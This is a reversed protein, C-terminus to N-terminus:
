GERRVEASITVGGVPRSAHAAAYKASVRVEVIEPFADMLRSAARKVATELFESERGEITKAAVEIAAGHDVAGESDSEGFVAYSYELDVLISRPRCAREEPAGGFRAHVELDKIVAHFITSDPRPEEEPSRREPDKHLRRLTERAVREVLGPSDPRTGSLVAPGPDVVGLREFVERRIAEPGADASGFIRAAVGGSEGALGLLLHETGVYGHELQLSERLSLELVKKSRPTFPAQSGSGDEGYGVIGEVRGRAGDVGFGLSRLAQAAIGEGERLLGLLLHETGIFNHNFHRAEEQALVIVKRARETFREFM